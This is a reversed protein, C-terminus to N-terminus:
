RTGQGHGGSIMTVVTSNTQPLHVMRDAASAMIDDIVRSNHRTHTHM